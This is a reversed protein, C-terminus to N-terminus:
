CPDDSTCCHVVAESGSSDGEQEAPQTRRIYFSELNLVHDRVVIDTDTNHFEFFGRHHTQTCEELFAKIHSSDGQVVMQCFGGEACKTVRRIWGRLEYKVALRAIKSKPIHKSYKGAYKSRPYITLELTSIVNISTPAVFYTKPLIRSGENYTTVTEEHLALQQPEVLKIEQQRLQEEKKKLEQKGQNWQEWEKKHTYFTENECKSIQKQAENTDQEVGRLEGNVVQM